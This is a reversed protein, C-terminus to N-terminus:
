LGFRLAIQQRQVDTMRGRCCTSGGRWIMCGRSTLTRSTRVKLPTQCSLHPPQTHAAWPPWQRSGKPTRVWQQCRFTETSFLEPTYLLSSLEICTRSSGPVSRLGLRATGEYRQLGDACRRHCCAPSSSHIHLQQMNTQSQARFIISKEKRWEIRVDRQSLFFPLLCKSSNLPLPVRGKTCSLASVNVRNSRRKYIVHLSRCGIHVLPLM